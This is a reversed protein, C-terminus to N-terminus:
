ETRAGGSSRKLGWLRGDALGVVLKGDLWALGAIDQPLWESNKVQGNKDLLQLTGGWYAVALLEGAPAVIKVIRGTPAHRRAREMAAADPATSLRKSLEAM